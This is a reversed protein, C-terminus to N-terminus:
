NANEIGIIILKRNVNIRKLKAGLSKFDNNAELKKNLERFFRNSNEFKNQWINYDITQETAINQKKKTTVDKLVDDVIDAVEYPDEFSGTIKFIVKYKQGNNIYEIWYSFIISLVIDIAWYIEEEIL